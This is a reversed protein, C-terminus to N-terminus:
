FWVPFTDLCLLNVQTFCLSYLMAVVSKTEKGERVLAGREKKEKEKTLLPDVASRRCGEKEQVEMIPLAMKM